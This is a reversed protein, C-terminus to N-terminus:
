VGGILPILFAMVPLALLAPIKRFFMSLAMILFVLIFLIAQLTEM